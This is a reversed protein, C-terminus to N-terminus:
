HVTAEPAPKPEEVIPAANAKEDAVRKALADLMKQAKDDAEKRRDDVTLTTTQTITQEVTEKDKGYARNWVMQTNGLGQPTYGLVINTIIQADINSLKDFAQKDNFLKVTDGRPKNLWYPIRDSPRQWTKHGRNGGNPNPSPAGKKWNPNAM